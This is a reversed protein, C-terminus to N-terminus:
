NQANGSSAELTNFYKQWDYDNVDKENTTDFM